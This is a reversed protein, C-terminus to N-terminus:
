LMVDRELQYIVDCDSCSVASPTAKQEHYKLVRDLKLGKGANQKAVKTLLWQPTTVCLPLFSLMDVSVFHHSRIWENKCAM